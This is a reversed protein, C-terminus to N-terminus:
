DTPERQQGVLDLGYAALEVFWKVHGLQGARLYELAKALLEAAAKAQSRTQTLMEAATSACDNAMLTTVAERTDTRRSM